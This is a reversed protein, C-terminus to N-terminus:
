FHIISACFSSWLNGAVSYPLVTKFDVITTLLQLRSTRLALLYGSFLQQMICMYSCTLM